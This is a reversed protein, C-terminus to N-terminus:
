HKTLQLLSFCLLVICEEASGQNINPLDLIEISWFAV